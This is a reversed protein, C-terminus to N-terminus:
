EIHGRLDIAVLRPAPQSDDHAIVSPAPLDHVVHITPPLCYLLRDLRDAVGAAHPDFSVDITLKDLVLPVSAMFTWRAGETSALSKERKPSCTWRQSSPPASQSWRSRM